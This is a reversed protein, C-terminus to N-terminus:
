ATIELFNDDNYSNVIEVSLEIIEKMARYESESLKEGDSNEGDLNYLEEMADLCDQLDQATNQFRCYSMNSM